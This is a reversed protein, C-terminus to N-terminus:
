LINSIGRFGLYSLNYIDFVFEMVNYTRHMITISSRILLSLLVRSIEFGSASVAVAFLATAKTWAVCDTAGKFNTLLMM